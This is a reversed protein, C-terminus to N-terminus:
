SNVPHSEQSPRMATCPNFVKRSVTLGARSDSVGEERLFDQWCHLHRFHPPPPPSATKNKQELRNNNQSTVTIFSLLVRVAQSSCRILRRAIGPPRAPPGTSLAQLARGPGSPPPLPQATLEAPYPAAWGPHPLNRRPCNQHFAAPGSTRPQFCRPPEAPGQEYPFDFWGGTIEAVGQDVKLCGLSHGKGGEEWTHNLLCSFQHLLTSGRCPLDLRRRDQSLGDGRRHAQEATQQRRSSDAWSM